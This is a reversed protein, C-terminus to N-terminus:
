HGQEERTGSEITIITNQLPLKRWSEKLLPRTFLICLAKVYVCVCSKIQNSKCPYVSVCLFISVYVGVTFQRPVGHKNHHNHTKAWQAFIKCIHINMNSKSWKLWATWIWIGIFSEKMVLNVKGVTKKWRMMKWAEEHNVDNIGAEEEEEEEEELLYWSARSLQKQWTLQMLPFHQEGLYDYSSRWKTLSQVKVM